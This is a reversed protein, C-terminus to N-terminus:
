PPLVAARTQAHGARAMSGLTTFNGRVLSAVAARIDDDADDLRKAARHSSHPHGVELNHGLLRNFVATDDELVYVEIGHDAPLGLNGADVFEGM